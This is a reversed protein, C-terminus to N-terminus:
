FSLVIAGAVGSPEPAIGVRLSPVERSADSDAPDKREKIYESRFLRRNHAFMGWGLVTMVIGVPIATLAYIGVWAPTGGCGNSECMSSLAAGGFAILGSAAIVTGSIGLVLGTTAARPSGDAVEFLMPRKIRVGKTGITQGDNGIVRLTYPGPDVVTECSEFCRTVIREAGDTAEEVAVSTGPRIAGIRLTVGLSPDGTEEATAVSPLLTCVMAVSGTVIARRVFSVCAMSDISPWSM